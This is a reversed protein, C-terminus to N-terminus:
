VEAYIFQFVNQPLTMWLPPIHELGILKFVESRLSLTHFFYFVSSSLFYYNIEKYSFCFFCYDFPSLWFCTPSFFFFFLYSIVQRWFCKYVSKEALISCLKKFPNCFDSSSCPCLFTQILKNPYNYKLLPRPQFKEYMSVEWIDLDGAWPFELLVWPIPQVTMASYLVCCGKILLSNIKVLM